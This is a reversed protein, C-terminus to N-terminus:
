YSKKKKIWKTRDPTIVLIDIPGGVTKSTTTFKMTDITTKIAFEAFDIADQISMLEWAIKQNPYNTLGAKAILISPPLIFTQPANPNPLPQLTAPNTAPQLTATNAPPLFLTSNNPIDRINSSIYVNKILRTLVATEGDWAAGASGPNTFQVISGNGTTVRYGNIIKDGSSDVDFGFVHFIINTNPNLQRVYALLKSATDHVTDTVLVMSKAFKRILGSIPKRNIDGDGCTSIGCNNITVFTKDVTDFYHGSPLRVNQGLIQQVSNFSTRSDSAMVIGESTYVSVILSM